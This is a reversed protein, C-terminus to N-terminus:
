EEWQFQTLQGEECLGAFDYQRYVEYLIINVSNALNLSRISQRMPIRICDAKNEFLLQEPLGKTEKGFVIFTNEPYAVDAYTNVAKTSAYYFHGEPHRQKVEAFSDYYHIKAESWYDLGARKLYKDEVSFGLPRVLHLKAGTAACTRVINGTNQPIEPEVLVINLNCMPARDALLVEALARFAQGRHSVANKEEQSLQGFGKGYGEHFFIPDYGFGEEGMPAEAIRGEVEGLRFLRRGDGCVAVAACVFKAKRREPVGALGLERLAALLKDMKQADTAGEGAYRATHVGPGGNLAEVCLGSDDALVVLEKQLQPNEAYEAKQILEQFLADAKIFANELFTIGNEEPDSVCGAEKASLVEVSDGLIEKIERIKGKNGTAVVVKM